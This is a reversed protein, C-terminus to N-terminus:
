ANMGICASIGTLLFRIAFCTIKSQFVHRQYPRMIYHPVIHYAFENSDCISSMYHINKPTSLQGSINAQEHQNSGSVTRYLSFVFGRKSM